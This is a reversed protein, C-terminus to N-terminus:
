GGDAPPTGGRRSRTESGAPAGDSADADASPANASARGRRARGQAVPEGAAETPAGDGAPRTARPSRRRGATVPEGETAEPADSPASEAGAASTRRRRAGLAVSPPTAPAETEDPAAPWEAAKEAPAAGLAALPVGGPQASEGEAPAAKGGRGGRRRSSPAPPAVAAQAEPPPPQGHIAAGIIADAAAAPPTQPRPPSVPFFEEFRFAPQPAPAPEASPRTVSSPTGTRRTGSGRPPPEPAPEEPEPLGAPLAAEEPQAARRREGWRGRGRRGAPAEERREDAEPPEALDDEPAARGAAVGRGEEGRGRGGRRRRTSPRDEGASAEQARAPPTRRGPVPEAPVLAEVEAGFARVKEVRLRNAAILASIQNAVRSRAEGRGSPDEPVLAKVVRRMTAAEGPHENLTAVMQIIEDESFGAAQGTVRIPEPEPRPERGRGREYGGGAPSRWGSPQAGESRRQPQSGPPPDLLILRDALAGLERSLSREEAAVYVQKGHRKLANAVAIFNRDGTALVFIEVDEATELQDRLDQAMVDDTVSKMIGGSPWSPCHILRFGARFLRIALDTM